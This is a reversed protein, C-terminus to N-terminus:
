HMKIIFICLFILWVRFIIELNLSYKNMLSKLITLTKETADPACLIHYILFIKEKDCNLLVSQM